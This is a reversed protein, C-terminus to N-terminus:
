GLVHLRSLGEIALAGRDDRLEWIKGAIKPGVWPISLFEEFTASNTNVRAM